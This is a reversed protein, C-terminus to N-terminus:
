YIIKFQKFENNVITNQMVNFWPQGVRRGRAGHRGRTVKRAGSMVRGAKVIILIQLFFYKLILTHKFKNEHCEWSCPRGAKAIKNEKTGM